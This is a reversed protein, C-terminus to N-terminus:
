TFKCLTLRYVVVIVSNSYSRRLKLNMVNRNVGSGSYIYIIRERTINHMVISTLLSFDIIASSEFIYIYISESYSYM